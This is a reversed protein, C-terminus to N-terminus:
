ALRHFRTQRIVSYYDHNAADFHSAWHECLCVSAPMKETKKRRKTVAHMTSRGSRVRHPSPLLQWPRRPHPLRPGVAINGCLQSGPTAPHLQRATLPFHAWSLIRLTVCATYHGHAHWLGLCSSARLTGQPLRHQGTAPHGPNPNIDRDVSVRHPQRRYRPLHTTHNTRHKPGESTPSHTIFRQSPSWM